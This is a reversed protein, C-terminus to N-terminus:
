ARRMAVARELADKLAHGAREWTYESARARGATALAATLATDDLVKEIAGTIAGPDEPDVMLAADGAVERLAGRDSVIAPCGSAMAELLPLGFGEYLSPFVLARAGSYLPALDRDNVYGVLHVEGRDRAAELRHSIDDNRWGQGGVIVLPPVDARTARLRDLADLVRGLNKRPELTGVFLLYSPPLGVDSQPWGANRGFHQEDFGNPVVATRDEPLAFREIIEARVTDSVTVVMAARKLVRPMVARLYYLNRRSVFHPFHLYTLDHIVPVEAIARGPWTVFGPALMVDAPGLFRELHPSLGLVMLKRHLRNSFRIQKFSVNPGMYSTDLTAARLHFAVLQIDWDPAIRALSSVAGATWRGVGTPGLEASLPFLPNADVVVKM